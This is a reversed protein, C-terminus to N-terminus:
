KRILEVRRLRAHYRQEEEPERRPLAHGEGESSVSLLAAGVGRKVLENRIFEARRRGLDINFPDSGVPDTHGTILFSHERSNNFPRLFEAARDIMDSWRLNTPLGQEDLTFEYPNSADNFPFNVRFTVTDPLTIDQRYINRGEIIPIRVLQQRYLTNSSSATVEYNGGEQVEVQFEGSENTQTTTPPGPPDRPEVTVQAQPVPRGQPDFVRGTLKVMRPEVTRVLHAPRPIRHLVYIDFGQAGAQNSTYYLLTDPNAGSPSSPFLEDAPTNIPLGLNEARGVERGAIPARFLDYGGATAHGASSFYLWLGDGSAFPSLEDCPTNVGPGLNAPESWNGDAGRRSVYIDTGGHGGRRDSSFYLTRGDPSLSPQADWYVLSSIRERSAAADIAGSRYGGAFIDYDGAVSGAQRAAIFISDGARPLAGGGVAGGVGEVDVRREATAQTIRPFRVGILEEPSRGNRERITALGHSGDPRTFGVSFEDDDGNLGSVPSIKLYHTSRGITSSTDITRESFEGPRCPPDSAEVCQLRSREPFHIITTCGGLLGVGLAVAGSLLSLLCRHVFIVRILKLFTIFSTWSFPFIAIEM